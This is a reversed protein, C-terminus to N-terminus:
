TDVCAFLWVLASVAALAKYPLREQYFVHTGVCTLLRVLANIAALVKFRLGDQIRM